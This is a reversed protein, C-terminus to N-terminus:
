LQVLEAEERKGGIKKKKKKLSNSLRRWRDVREGNCDLVQLEDLM